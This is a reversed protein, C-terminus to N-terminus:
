KAAISADSAIVRKAGIYHKSYYGNDPFTQYTVGKKTSAHIFTCTNNEADVSVVMGVHGVRGAGSRRSSFFMLDGPKMDRVQRVREGQTYQDRSSRSLSIGIKRFIYSTFGSCDFSSPGASGWVYRTGLFTAAYDVVRNALEMDFAPDSSFDATEIATFGTNLRANAFAASMFSQDELPTISLYEAASKSHTEPLLAQAQSTAISAIALAAATIIGTLNMITIFEKFYSTSYHLVIAGDLSQNIPKSM